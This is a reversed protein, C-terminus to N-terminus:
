DGGENKQKQEEKNKKYPIMDFSILVWLCSCMIALMYVVLAIVALIKLLLM